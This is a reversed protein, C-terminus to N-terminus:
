SRATAAANYDTSHSVLTLGFRADFTRERWPTLTPLAAHEFSALCSREPLAHRLQTACRHEFARRLYVAVATVLIRAHRWTHTPM